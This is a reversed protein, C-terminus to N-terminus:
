IIFYSDIIEGLNPNKESAFVSHYPQLPRYLGVADEGGIGVAHVNAPTLQLSRLLMQECRLERPQGTGSDKMSFVATRSCLHQRQPAFGVRPSWEVGTRVRTYREALVELGELQNNQGLCPVARMVLARLLAM